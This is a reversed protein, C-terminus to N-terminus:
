RRVAREWRAQAGTLSGMARRRRGVSTLGGCRRGMRQKDNVQTAMDGSGCRAAM